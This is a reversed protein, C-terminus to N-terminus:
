FDVLGILEDTCNVLGRLFLSDLAKQGRFISIFTMSDQLKRKKFDTTVGHMEPNYSIQIGRVNNNRNM